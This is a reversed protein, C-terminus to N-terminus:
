RNMMMNMMGMQNQMMAIREEMSMFSMDENENMGMRSGGMMMKAKQISAM